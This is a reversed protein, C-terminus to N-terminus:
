DTEGTSRLMQVAESINTLLLQRWSFEILVKTTYEFETIMPVVQIWRPRRDKWGGAEIPDGFQAPTPFPSIPPIPEHPVPIHVKQYDAPQSLLWSTSSLGSIPDIASYAPMPLVILMIMFESVDLIISIVVAHHYNAHSPHGRVSGLTCGPGPLAQLLPVVIVEGKSPLHKDIAYIHDVLIYSPTSSMTPPLQRLFSYFLPFFSFSSINHVDRAVLAYM